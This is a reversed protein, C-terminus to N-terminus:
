RDFLIYSITVLWPYLIIKSSQESLNSSHFRKFNKILEKNKKKIFKNLFKYDKKMKKQNDWHYDSILFTKFKKLSYETLYKPDELCYDGVFKVKKNKSNELYIKKHM